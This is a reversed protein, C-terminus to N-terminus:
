VWCLLARHSSPPPHEPGHRRHNGSGGGDTSSPVGAAYFLELGHVAGSLAWLERLALSRASSSALSTIALGLFTELRRLQVLRCLVPQRRRAHSALLSRLTPRAFSLCPEAQLPLLAQALAYGTRHVRAAGEPSAAIASIFVLAARLVDHLALQLRAHPLSALSAVAPLSTTAPTAFSRPSLTRRETTEKEEKDATNSSEAKEKDAVASKSPRTDTLAALLMEDQMSEEREEEELPEAVDRADIAENDDMDEGEDEDDMEAEDDDDDDDDDDHPLPEDDQMALRQEAESIAEAAERGLLRTLTDRPEAAAAISAARRGAQLSSAIQAAASLCSRGGDGGSSAGGAARTSAASPAAAVAAAAAATASTTAASAATATASAGISQSNSAQPKGEDDAAEDRRAVSSVPPVTLPALAHELLVDLLRTTPEESAPSLERGGEREGGQGQLAIKLLPLPEGIAAAAKAAALSPSASAAPGSAASGSLHALCQLTRPTSLSCALVASVLEAEGALSPPLLSGATSCLASALSGVTSALNGFVGTLAEDCAPMRNAGIRRIQWRVLHRM